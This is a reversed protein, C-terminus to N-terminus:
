LSCDVGLLLCLFVTCVVHWLKTCAICHHFHSLYNAFFSSRWTQSTKSTSIGVFWWFRFIFRYLSWVIFALLLHLCICDCVNNKTLKRAKKIIWIEFPVLFLVGSHTHLESPLTNGECPFPWPISARWMWKKNELNIINKILFM